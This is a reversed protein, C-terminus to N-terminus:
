RPPLEDKAISRMEERLKLKEVQTLTEKHQEEGKGATTWGDIAGHVTGVIGGVSTGILAGVAANTGRNGPVLAGIAAGVGAGGITGVTSEIFSKGLAATVKGPGKYDEDYNDSMHFGKFKIKVFYFYCLRFNGLYINLNYSLFKRSLNPNNGTPLVVSLMFAYWKNRGTIGSEYQCVAHFGSSFCRMLEEADRVGAKSLGKRRGSHCRRWRM